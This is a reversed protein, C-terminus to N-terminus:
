ASLIGKVGSTAEVAHCKYWKLALLTMDDYQSAPGVFREHRSRFGNILGQPHLARSSELYATFREMGFEEDRSNRADGIGDTYLVLWDNKSLDVEASELKARFEDADVLGLPVGKPKIRRIGGQTGSVLIASTHGASALSVHGTKKELLAVTMTVFMGEQISALLESNAHWLLERPQRISVTLRKIIDRVLLMVIMAPLSKGSVDAVLFALHEDDFDIFDFYDGGVEMASVYTGAFEFAASRPYTRPLLNAQIERAIELEQTIREREIAERQAVCLKAGMVQLTEALYGFENRVTLPIDLSVNDFSIRKLSDTIVRVPRLKRHLVVVTVPIGLALFAVTISVVTRISVRRVEAIQHASSAVALRGLAISDEVIPITIYITDSRQTFTEGPQQVQLFEAGHLRPLTSRVVVNRIDTHAIFVDDLGAIGAWYVDPNDAALKQCINGLMLEDPTSTSIIHNGAMTSFARAQVLLQKATQRTANRVFTDTLVYGSLLMLLLILGSVLLSFEVRLSRNFQKPQPWGDARATHESNTM